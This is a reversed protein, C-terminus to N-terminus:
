IKGNSIETIQQTQTPLSDKPPTSKNSTMWYDKGTFPYTPLSIRRTNKTNKVLNWPIDIGNVWLEAIESFMRKEIWEFAIDSFKNERSLQQLLNGTDTKTGVHVGTISPTNGSLYESIKKILSPTDDSILAIRYTQQERGIRLTHAINELSVEPTKILSERLDTVRAQLGEPTKASLIILEEEPINDNIVASTPHEEIIIHANSGTAGFSSIGARRPQEVEMGDITLTTPTWDCLEQQIYLASNEFDFESTLEECHISPTIKKHRMQLLVKTIGAIGSASECYGINPKYSGVACYQKDKNFRQLAHNLGMLEISDGMSTGTAHAEVYNISRPDINARRIADVIVETQEAAKPTAYRNTRGSSNIMTAKIVGHINDGDQEAQHLPKIIIAGVGDGDIFGDAHKSFSKCKDDKTLMGTFCLEEYQKPDVILNVGGVIACNCTGSRLSEVALHAGTLSSSCASDIAFSPGKFDFSYSIRNPISYYQPGSPYFGNTVGVFVGVNNDKDLTDPTYGADEICRYVTELLLREQPDMWTAESASIGFFDADFRAINDIFAGFKTYVKGPSRDKSYNDQWDWRTKPIESVSSIGQSINSWFDEVSNAGPYRGAVGIIAIDGSQLSSSSHAHKRNSETESAHALEASNTETENISFLKTLQERDISVLHNALKTISGYEYIKTSTISPIREQMKNAVRSALISDVGYLEFSSEPEIDSPDMDLASCLDETLAAITKQLLLDDVSSRNTSTSLIDSNAMTNPTCPNIVGDSRSIIIQQGLHEANSAPRNIDTYGLKELLSEWNRISLAATGPIRAEPDNFRWWGDLLGFTLHTFDNKQTIENIALIGNQVLTAKINNLSDTMNQTAHLVNAGIVIDFEQQINQTSPHHEANFIGYSLYPTSPGYHEKAHLLFAKSLDTYHYDAINKEFPELAKFILASTGGTGAGVELIRIKATPDATIKKKIHYAITKALADNYFDAVINNKYINEVLGMSSNPFIIDTAQTKGTLIDPLSKLCTEILNSKASIQEDDKWSSKKTDWIKWSLSLPINRDRKPHFSHGNKIILGNKTLIHLSEELWNKYKEDIDLATSIVEIDGNCRLLGMESLSAWLVTRSLTDLEYYYTKNNQPQLPPFFAHEPTNQYASNTPKSDRQIKKPLDIKRSTVRHLQVCVNGENDCIDIDNKQIKDGKKSGESRRVWAWVEAPPSRYINVEEIAFPAFSENTDSTNNDLSLGINSQMAGDLLSPHLVFDNITKTINQPIRLYALAMDSNWQIREIPQHAPGYKLGMNDFITYCDTKSTNGGNCRSQIKHLDIIKSTNGEKIRVHGQCYVENNNRDPKVDFAILGDDKQTLIIDASKAKSGIFPQIWAIHIFQICNTTTNGLDENELARSVLEMYMVGPLIPTDQIHHDVLFFEKGSFKIQYGNPGKRIYTNKTQGSNEQQIKNDEDVIAPQTHPITSTNINKHSDAYGPISQPLRYEKLNFPYGPATVRLPNRDAYLSEWHATKGELWTALLMHPLDNHTRCREISRLDHSDFVSDNQNESLYDRLYLALEESSNASIGLRNKFSERGTQYTYCFNSLEQPSLAIKRKEIFILVNQAYEKLRELKMTSLILIFPSSTPPEPEIAPIYEEIILHANSGGAGFASIGAARPQRTGDTAQSNWHALSRQVKFPTNEFKIYTNLRESHISPVLTEHKMQLLVKTLGAMGAASECHGINSKVSGIACFKKDLTSKEFATSLGKIEIPDGLSTGTGHAEVYSINRPPIGSKALTRDIVTTQANPNPVTYGNTKGGHNIDTAKIIGQINDGDKIAQQLPKLLVAGVGEGPVYGDGDEGFAHCRGTPSLFKGASLSLYKNPHLSLNVGGAIAYDCEDNVINQCALHIATLSSSCMTDVAMSPGNFNFYYSVRNAISSPSGQMVMPRGLAQEQVGFMPYETYMVGVYVGIRPNLGNKNPKILVQKTYGANEVTEYVTQLFLREQPDTWKAEQPSINFFIPDFSYPSRLFGGWKSYSKGVKGAESDYYTEFDWHKEPIQTVCDKGEILNEWFEDINSAQPYQGALGIIAIDQDTRRQQVVKKHGHLKHKIDQQKPPSYTRTIDTDVPNLTTENHIGLIIASHHEIMFDALDSLCQYEFLLTKSLEGFHEELANTYRLAKVSDIGYDELPSEYNIKDIPLTLVESLVQALFQSACGKLDNTELKRDTDNRRQKKEQIKKIADSRSIKGEKIAQYLAQDENNM